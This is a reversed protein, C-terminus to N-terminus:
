NRSDFRAIIFRGGAEGEKCDTLNKIERFNEKATKKNGHYIIFM